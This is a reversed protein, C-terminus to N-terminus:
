AFVRSYKWLYSSSRTPRTALTAFAVKPDRNLLGRSLAATLQSFLNQFHNVLYQGDGSRRPMDGIRTEASSIRGTHM